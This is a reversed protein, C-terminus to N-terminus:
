WCEVDKASLVATTFMGKEKRANMGLIWLQLLFSFPVLTPRHSDDHVTQLINPSEWYFYFELSFWLPECNGACLAATAWSTGLRHIPKQLNIWLWHCSSTAASYGASRVHPQWQWIPRRVVGNVTNVVSKLTQIIKGLQTHQICFPQGLKRVGRVIVILMNVLLWSACMSVSNSQMVISTGLQWHVLIRTALAM